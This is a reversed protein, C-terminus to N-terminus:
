PSPESARASAPCDSFRLRSRLVWTLLQASSSSVAPLSCAFVSSRHSESLLELNLFSGVSLSYFFSLFAGLVRAEQMCVPWACRCVHVFMCVWLSEQRSGSLSFQSTYLPLAPQVFLLTSCSRLMWAPTVCEESSIHVYTVIPM